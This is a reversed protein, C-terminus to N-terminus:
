ATRVLAERHIPCLPPHDPDYYTVEQEYDGRPCSYVPRPVQPYGALGISTGLGRVNLLGQAYHAVLSRSLVGGIENSRLVVAGPLDQQNLLLPTLARVAEDLNTEASVMPVVPLRPQEMLLPGFQYDPILWLPQGHTTLILFESKLSAPGRAILKSLRDLPETQFTAVMVEGVKAM